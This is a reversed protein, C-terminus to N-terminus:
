PHAPPPAQMHMRGFLLNMGLMDMIFMAELAVMLFPISYSLVLYRRPWLWGWIGKLTKRAWFIQAEHTPSTPPAARKNKKQYNVFEMDWLEHNESEDLIDAYKAQLKNLNDITFANTEHYEPHRRIEIKRVLDKLRDGCQELKEARYDYKAAGVFSSYALVAVALFIQMMNLLRDDLGLKVGANQMLPIFILGLSLVSITASAIRGQM